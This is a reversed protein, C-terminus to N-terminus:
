IQGCLPKVGTLEELEAMQGGAADQIIKHPDVVEYGFVLQRDKVRYRLRNRIKYPTGFEFPAIGAILESPVEMTGAKAATSGAGRLEVDEEYSLKMKGNHLNLANAFRADVKGQLSSILQLLDAGNPEKIIDQNDELHQLFAAHELPKGNQAMWRLWEVSLQATYEATFDGFDQAGSATGHYNFVAKFKTGRAGKPDVDAILISNDTKHAKFYRAFSDLDNLVMRGIKRFPKSLLHPLEKIEYSYPVIVVPM